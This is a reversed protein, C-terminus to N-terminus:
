FSKTAIDIAKLGKFDESIENSLYAQRADQRKRQKESMFRQIEFTGGTFVCIFIYSAVQMELIICERNDKQPDVM